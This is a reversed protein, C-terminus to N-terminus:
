MKNTIEKIKETLSIAKSLNMKPISINNLIEKVISQVYAEDM